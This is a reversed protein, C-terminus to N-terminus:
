AGSAIKKKEADSLGGADGVVEVTRTPFPITIGERELAEKITKTLAWRLDWYDTNQSWFRVILNISFDGMTDVMTQPMKDDLKSVREEADLIKEIVAFAKNIDDKYSIGVLIDQRRLMNRSFNKIESGWIKSNPAFIYVNDPMALETGFLGLYKVTGGFSGFEIYDGVNFPRLILLMVGSAVNSLTGQLALGIALGAAGLVALLSAMPIGFLGIVTIVAIFIITYKFFGGLFNKLTDDLRKMNEFRRDIWNGVMWGIILILIAVLLRVGWEVGYDLALKQFTSVGKAVDVDKLKEIAQLNIDPLITADPKNGSM